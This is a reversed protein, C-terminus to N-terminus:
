WRPVSSKYFHVIKYLFYKLCELFVCVFALIGKLLLREGFCSKKRVIWLDWRAKVERFVENVMVNYIFLYFWSLVGSNLSLYCYYNFFFRWGKQSIHFIQSKLLLSLSFNGKFISKSTYANKVLFFHQNLILM